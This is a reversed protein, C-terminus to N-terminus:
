SRRAPQMKNLHTNNSAVWLNNVVLAAMLKSIKIKVLPQPIGLYVVALEQPLNNLKLSVLPKNNRSSNVLLEESFRARSSIRKLQNNNHAELFDAVLLLTKCILLHLAVLYVAERPLKLNNLVRLGVLFDKVRHLHRPHTAGSYVEQLNPVQQGVLRQPRRLTIKSSVLFEKGRTKSPNNHAVVL